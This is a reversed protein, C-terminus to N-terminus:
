IGLRLDSSHLAVVDTPPESIRHIQPALADFAQAKEVKFAHRDYTGRVGTIVHGLAREAHDPSVGARSMLSRATRRLDHNTWSQLPTADPDEERLLALVHQDFARKFKSFGAIPREGDTTFVWSKTGIVPVGSLVDLAAKSLPLLFEGKSKHRGSPIVWEGCTVEQRRM